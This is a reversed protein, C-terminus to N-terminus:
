VITHEPSLLPNRLSVCATQQKPPHPQQREQHHAHREPGTASSQHHCIDTFIHILSPSFYNHATSVKQEQGRPTPRLTISHPFNHKRELVTPRTISPSISQSIAGSQSLHCSPHFSTFLIDTALGSALSGGVTPTYHYVYEQRSTRCLSRPETQVTFGFSFWFFFIYINIIVSPQLSHRRQTTHWQRFRMQFFMTPQETLVAVYASQLQFELRLQCM